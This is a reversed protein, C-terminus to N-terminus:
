KVSPLYHQAHASGATRVDAARAAAPHAEGQAEAAAIDGSIEGGEDICIKGYRIKGAVRGGQRIVLQRHATLEGEFRGRVEAIDVQVKGRFVGHEAIEVVRSDMSADVEGEVILTDCDTIEAGKLKIDPGVTLRATSAQARAVEAAAQPASPAPADAAAPHPEPLVPKVPAAELRSPAAPLPAATHVVSPSTRLASHGPASTRANDRKRFTDLM